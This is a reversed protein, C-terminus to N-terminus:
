RVLYKYRRRISLHSRFAYTSTTLSDVPLCNVKMKTGEVISYIQAAIGSPNFLPGYDDDHSDKGESAGEVYSISGFCPTYQSDIQNKITIKGTSANAVNVGGVVAAVALIVSELGQRLKGKAMKNGSFLRPCGGNKAHVNQFM